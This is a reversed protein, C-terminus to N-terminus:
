HQKKRKQPHPTPMSIPQFVASSIGHTVNLEPNKLCVITWCFTGGADDEGADEVRGEDGEGAEEDARIPLADAEAAERAARLGIARLVVTATKGNQSPRRTEMM